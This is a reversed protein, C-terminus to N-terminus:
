EGDEGLLLAVTFFIDRRGRGEGEVLAEGLWYLLLVLLLLFSLSSRLDSGGVLQADSSLLLLALLVFGLGVESM